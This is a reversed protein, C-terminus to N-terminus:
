RLLYGDHAEAVDPPQIHKINRGIVNDQEHGLLIFADDNVAQITGFDDITILADLESMDRLRMKITEDTDSPALNYSVPLLSFNKCVAILYFNLAPEKLGRIMWNTKAQAPKDPLVPILVEIPQGIFDSLPRDTPHGLMTLIQRKIAVIVGAKSLTIEYGERFGKRSNEGDVGGLDGRKIIGKFLMTGSGDNSDARTIIARVQIVSGDAHVAPLIRGEVSRLINSVKTRRYRELYM